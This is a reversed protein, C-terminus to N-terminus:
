EKSLFSVKFLVRFQGSADFTGPMSDEALGDDDLCWEPLGADNNPRTTWSKSRHLAEADKPLEKPGTRWNRNNDLIQFCIFMTFMLFVIVVVAKKLDHQFSAPNVNANYM